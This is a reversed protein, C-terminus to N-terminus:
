RVNMQILYWAIRLMSFYCRRSVDYSTKHYVGEIEAASTTARLSLDKLATITHDSTQVFFTAIAAHQSQAMEQGQLAKSNWDAMRSQMSSQQSELNEQVDVSLLDAKAVLLGGERTVRAKTEAGDAELAKRSKAFQDIQKAGQVGFERAWSQQQTHAASLRSTAGELADRSDTFHHMLTDTQDKLFVDVLGGIDKLLAEKQDARLAEQDQLQQRLIQNQLTLFEMEKSTSKEYANLADQIQRVGDRSFVASEDVLGLMGSTLGEHQREVYATYDALAKKLSGFGGIASSMTAKTTSSLFECTEARLTEFEQKFALGNQTGSIELAQFSEMAKDMRELQAAVFAKASETGETAERFADDIRQTM